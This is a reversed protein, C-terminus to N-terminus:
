VIVKRWIFDPASSLKKFASPTQGVVKKFQLCFHSISSFDLEYAIESVNMEDYIMLEKAREIRQEIYFREITSNELESFINSLYTYDYHLAKSVFESFKIKEDHTAAHLMEIIVTKIREVLVKKKNELIELHYFKLKSNFQQLQESSLEADLNVWGLEIETYKWQMKDLVSQVAM